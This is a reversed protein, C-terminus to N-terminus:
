ARDAASAGSRRAADELESVLMEATSLLAAVERPDTPSLPRVVAVVNGHARVALDHQRRLTELLGSEIVVRLAEAERGAQTRIRLGSVPRVGRPLELPQLGHLTEIQDALAGLAKTRPNEPEVMLYPTDLTESHVLVVTRTPGAARDRLLYRRWGSQGALLDFLWWRRRMEERYMPHFAAAAESSDVVGLRALEGLLVAEKGPWPEFGQRSGAKRMRRGRARMRRLALLAPVVTALTVVLLLFLYLLADRYLELEDM